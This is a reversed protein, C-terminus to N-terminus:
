TTLEKFRKVYYAAETAYSAAADADAADAAANAAYSAADYASVYAYSAADYAADYANYATDYADSPAVYAADSANSANVRLEELSVAEKDKLWREVLEIHENM